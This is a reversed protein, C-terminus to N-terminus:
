SWYSVIGYRPEYKIKNYTLGIMLKQWDKGFDNSPFPLENSVIDEDLYLGGQEKTNPLAVGYKINELERSFNFKDEDQFLEQMLIYWGGRDIWVRLYSGVYLTQSMSM